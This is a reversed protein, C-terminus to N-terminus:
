ATLFSKWNCFLDYLPPHVVLNFHEFIHNSIKIETQKCSFYEVSRLIFRCISFDDDEEYEDFFYDETPIEVSSSMTHSTSVTTKTHSPYIQDLVLSTGEAFSAAFFLAFLFAFIFKDKQNLLIKRLQNMRTSYQRRIRQM